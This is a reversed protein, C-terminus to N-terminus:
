RDHWHRLSAHQREQLTHCSFYVFSSTRHLIHPIGDVGPDTLQSWRDESNAGAASMMTSILDVAHLDLPENAMTLIGIAVEGTCPHHAANRRKALRQLIVSENNDRITCLLHELVSVALTHDRIPSGYGVAWADDDRVAVHCAEFM